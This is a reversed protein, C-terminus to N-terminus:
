YARYRKVTVPAEPGASREFYGNGRASPYCITIAIKNKTLTKEEQCVTNNKCFGSFTFAAVGRLKRLTEAAASFV